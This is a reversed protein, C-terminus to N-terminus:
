GRSRGRGRGQSRGRSPQRPAQIDETGAARVKSDYYEDLGAELLNLEEIWMCLPTSKQAKRLMEECKESEEKLAQVKDITMSSCQMRTLYEYTPMCDYENVTLYSDLDNTTKNKLELDGNILALIFRVKNKAMKSEIMCQEINYERRLRYLDMRCKYHEQFINEITFFRLRHELDFLHVNSISLKTTMKLIKEADPPIQFCTLVIRVTVDTSLNDINKIFKEANSDKNSTAMHKDKLVKIYEETWTCVPLETIVISNPHSIEFTGHSLFSKDDEKTMRGTHGQYYPTISNCDFLVESDEVQMDETDVDRLDVREELKNEMAQNKANAYNLCIKLVDRPSFNPLFTSWGTGIGNAGNVLVTPVIPVFRKPEIKHGDDYAYELVPDDEKRFILRAIPDTKTFIYRVAAHEKPKFHRSGFQGEPWLYAINNTGVFDQAIGVIAENISAEGHHYATFEAVSAAAQAVKIENTYKKSFFTHIVKRQSPKMGDIGDPISRINDEFSFHSMEDRLFSKVTVSDEVYNVFTGETYDNTLFNKRESALKDDFFLHVADKCPDGSFELKTVHENWKKFYEKADKNTSTGLGKYYKLKHPVDANADKWIKYEAISFFGISYGGHSAPVTLRLIPTAFRKIFDPLSELVSPYHAHVWNIVLGAIHSGDIDQDSFIALHRYPLNMASEKDYKKGYELGLIQMLNHIEVNELVKKPPYKLANILKGRLPFVGFKERGVVSLGAVALSKASDGETVILTCSEKYLRSAPDYKDIRPISKGPKTTKQLQKDELEQGQSIAKDIIPSREIASRFSPSPDWNWGFNKVPTDLTEKTQSTFRPNPILTNTVIILENRILAPKINLDAKKSKSRAKHLVIEHIKRIIMDIHTGNSCKVGNVFGIICAENERASACVEFSNGIGGPLTDTAICGNVGIAQAFHQMNKMGIRTDNLTVAIQPKTCVCIEYARAELFQRLDDSLGETSVSEMGLRKYDPKWRLSVLNTKKATCSTIKPTHKIEMNKEFRQTFKKGDDVNIIEIEAFESWTITAKIGVGNRGGTFRDKSDDFNSGSLFESFIVTPLWQNTNDYKTIPISKGDNSIQIIGDKQVTLRINKMVNHKANEDDKHQNDVANVAAEDIFKLLAPSCVVKVSKACYKKEVHSFVLSSIEVPEIPGVYMDPRQLVHTRPDMWSYEKTKKAAEDDRDDHDKRKM